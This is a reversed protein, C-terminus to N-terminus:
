GHKEESKQLYFNLNKVTACFYLMFSTFIASDYLYGVGGVFIALAIAKNTRNVKKTLIRLFLSIYVLIGFIGRGLLLGFWDTEVCWYCGGEGKAM